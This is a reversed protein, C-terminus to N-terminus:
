GQLVLTRVRSLSQMFPIVDKNLMGQMNSPYLKSGLGLERASQYLPAWYSWRNILLVSARVRYVLKILSFLNIVTVSGSRSILPPLPRDDLGQSLPPLPRDDLGQSLSPHLDWFIKKRCKPGWNPRLDPPPAKRPDAVLNTWFNPSRHSWFSSVIWHPSRKDGQIEKLFNLTISVEQYTVMWHKVACCSCVVVQKLSCM